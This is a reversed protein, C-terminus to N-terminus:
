FISIWWLKNCRAELCTVTFSNLRLFVTTNYVGRSRHFLSFPPLLQSLFSRNFTTRSRACSVLCGWFTFCTSAYKKPIMSLCLDHSGAQTVTFTMFLSRSSESVGVHYWEYFHIPSMAGTGTWCEGREGLWAKPYTHTHVGPIQIDHVRHTRTMWEFLSHIVWVQVCVSVYGTIQVCPLDGKWQRQSLTHSELARLLTMQLQILKIREPLIEM